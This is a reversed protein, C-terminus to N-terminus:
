NTSCEVRLPFTVPEIGTSPELKFYELAVEKSVKKNRYFRQFTQFNSHGMTHMTWEMGKCWYGYTGFSHRAGDAPYKFGLRVCARRRSQNVGSWSSMVKGSRKKPIWSWLNEPLDYLTREGWKAIEGPIEIYEGWKIHKYELRSMEGNPRIGTFCMLAFAPQHSPKIERLIQLAQQPTLIGIPSPIEKVNLLEINWEKQPTYDKYHCWRFFVEWITKYTKRTSKTWLKGKNPGSRAVQIELTQSLSKLTIDKIKEWKLLLELKHHIPQTNSRPYRRQYDAIYEDIAFKTTTEYGQPITKSKEKIWEEVDFRVADTYKKFFKRTRTGNSHIDLIWTDKGNAKGKRINIKM